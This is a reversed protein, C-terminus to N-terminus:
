KWELEAMLETLYAVLNIESDACFANKYQYENTLIVFNPISESKIKNSSEDYLTRMVVIPDIDSNDNVWKRMESFSKKKLLDILVKFSEDKFNSLIGSNIEGLASYRQCENITRRFDPFHVTILEVLVKKDYKINESDLIYQLRKMFEMALKPKDAPSIVFDIVSCRSRLAELIKNKFNCTIIFGCNSSYEEMFNRLAPQTSQINLFDGEDIIVYKRGGYFSMTTAFDKIENRLTDINGNMSGNIIIYDIGLEDLMAKAVTTKGIGSKGSLLLNPIHKNNIFQQFTNKLNEPLITDSIKHPRYKETWVLEELM